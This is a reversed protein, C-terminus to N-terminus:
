IVDEFINVVTGDSKVDFSVSHNEICALGHGFEDIFYVYISDQIYLVKKVVWFPPITKM